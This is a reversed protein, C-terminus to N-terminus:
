RTSPRLRNLLAALAEAQDPSLRAEVHDRLAAAYVPWIRRRLSRGAATIRVSHGRRDEACPLREILGDRVLRDLLRSTGYQPLLLRDKLHLPRIGDAGAKEIELLADYRDLGPLGASKLAREVAELVTRSVTILATWAALTQPTPDTMDSGGNSHMHM